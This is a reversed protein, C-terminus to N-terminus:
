EANRNPPETGMLHRVFFDQLRRQGYAGGAGHGGNPVVLLDFDKNAKILADALRYTSEPPVNDDVEGVVLFLHGKLRGANDINSCEAYQPGVPYGMWQENWSAKDMRNDHCGCNAVAARYFEPHFLVAGAANQGGASTGYIGVRSIDYWPYKAAVAQHWLIRDPFGADKLNKFCVDHFAKSRFGTGMADLQVVVFGLDTLGSFRGGASFSKPTYAGQPGAYIYEIVPYKKTPDFNKPRCIIGWLDTKGDRAKAVFVEPATWGKATLAGTDAQELPCVLRGDSTRRLETVPAADVRSYTDILWASDPSYEVTHNGNGETLAVLDSGDFNVRYYQLFYPDQGPNRGGAHFWIQRKSENLMDVGRLVWEGRTIPKMAGTNRDVLYLHRWGSMESVYLLEDTQELWYVLSLRLMETHTTWVFTDSKEDVLNQVSGTARDVQIVRFRQHGRDDQQYAFKTGARNWHVDPQLWEHEFRDVVPKTQRGTAVDFVNLEYKPFKDGPLPYPRSALTARGGGPPSSRILYVEKREGPEIRFAVVTKSDPSWSVHGYPAEATGDTTLKREGGGDKARLVLNHDHVVATWKGDPSEGRSGRRSSADSDDDEANARKRNGAERQGEEPLSLTVGELKSCAYSELDCQWVAEEMKFRIAKGDATFELAPFPLKGASLDKGSAKALSAALRAHDFAPLRTGQAADVLIFEKAGEALDNRYWFRTGGELWHPVVRDRFMLRPTAAPGRGAQPSPHEGPGQDAPFIDAPGAEVSMTEGPLADGFVAVSGLPQGVWLLGALASFWTSRLVLRSLRNKMHM